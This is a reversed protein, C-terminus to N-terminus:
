VHARAWAELTLIDWVRYSYLNKEPSVSLTLLEEVMRRVREGDVVGLQELTTAGGLRQWALQGERVYMTRATTNGTVKRHTEFGLNPFRNALMGRVLGKSRGGRNLLDPPTRYLFTLLEADWFPAALRLGLRRGCEFMEELEMAVLAHDLARNMESLYIRGPERRVESGTLAREELRRRLAPDPAIWALTEAAHRRHRRAKWSPVIREAAAGLLPRTGFQWLLNKLIQHSPIPYSRRHNDWLRVLGPIDLELILDAAYFPTVTLWEDGGHGSLIVECDLARGERALHLYAPLWLSNVLPLPWRTSLELAAAVLGDRGSAEELPVLLQELGLDSAVRRQVVQEDEGAASFGLSLAMPTPQRLDRCRETAVAAITVSDLGGSLFIGSRGFALSRTVAQDLLEEFHDVEDPRVWDVPEGEPTPRWYRVIRRGARDIVLAHGPPVRRVASYYTEGPDPWRHALHDALAARNLEQSVRGDRLIMEISTSLLLENGTDAYFLPYTGVRDRAAVLAARHEDHVVLAYIGGFRLLWGEDAGAYAGLILEADSAGDLDLRKTIEDRDYLVGDFLALRQERRAVGVGADAPLLTAPRSLDRPLSLLWDPYPRHSEAPRAESEVARAGNM